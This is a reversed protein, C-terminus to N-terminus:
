DAGDGYWAPAHRLTAWQAADHGYVLLANRETAIRQLRAASARAADKDSYAGWDDAALQGSTYITDIALLLPQAGPLEVLVAQHGPTHGEALLLTVGPVLEHDGEIEQWVLGPADLYARQQANGARAAAVAARQVVIPVGVFEPLGGAHDFHFHTAVVHTLDSVALGLRAITEKAHAAEGGLPRMWPALSSGDQLIARPMGTDVLIRADDTEILYGPVPVTIRQGAESAPMIVRQDMDIQGYELAFVRM